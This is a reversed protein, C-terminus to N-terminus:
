HFYTHKSPTNDEVCERRVAVEGKAISGILSYSIFSPKYSIGGPYLMQM